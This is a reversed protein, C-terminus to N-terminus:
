VICKVITENRYASAIVNVIVDIVDLVSVNHAQVEMEGCLLDSLDEATVLVYPMLPTAAAYSLM